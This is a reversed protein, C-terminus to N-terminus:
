HHRDKQLRLGEFYSLWSLDPKIVAAHEAPIWLALSCLGSHPEPHVPALGADLPSFGGLGQMGEKRDLRDTLHCAKWALWASLFTYLACSLVSLLFFSCPPPLCLTYLSSPLVAVPRLVDHRLAALPRCAECYNQGRLPVSNSECWYEQHVAQPVKRRQAKCQSHNLFASYTIICTLHKSYHM